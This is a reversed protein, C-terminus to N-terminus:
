KTTRFFISRRFSISLPIPKHETSAAKEPLKSEKRAIVPAPKFAPREAIIIKPEQKPEPKIEPKAVQKEVVPQPSKIKPPVTKRLEERAKQWEHYDEVLMQWGKLLVVKLSIHFLLSCLYAFLAATILLSLYGGFLRLFLPSLKLGSWGGYNVHYLITGFVSLFSSAVMLILLNWIMDLRWLIVSSPKLYMWGWRIILLPILFAAKGFTLFVIKAIAEGVVGTQWPLVLCYGLLFSVLLLLIGKVERFHHQKAKTKVRFYM